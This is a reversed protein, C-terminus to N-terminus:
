SYTFNLVAFEGHLQSAWQDYMWAAEKKDDFRGVYFRKGELAIRAAYRVSVSDTREVGRYGTTNDRRANTSNERTTALRLNSRRNDLRDGSIHDVQETALLDRGLAREMILRHLRINGATKETRRAYGTDTCCWNDRMAFSFDQNDVKCVQGRTLPVLRYQKPQVPLTRRSRAEQRQREGKNTLALYRNACLRSCTKTREYRAPYRVLAPGKCVACEKTIM